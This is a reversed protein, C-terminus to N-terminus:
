NIFSVLVKRIGGLQIFAPIPSKLMNYLYLYLTVKPGLDMNDTITKYLLITQEIERERDREREREREAHTHTRARAHAAGVEDGTAIAASQLSLLYFYLLRAYLTVSLM